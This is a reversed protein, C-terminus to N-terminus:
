NHIYLSKDIYAARLKRKRCEEACEVAYTGDAQEHQHIFGIKKAVDVRVIFSGMDIQCEKIQTRLIDYRIYNHITNCYVMGTGYSCKDTFLEIFMPVYYNDDNTILVYDDSNGTLQNLMLKRNPHGWLGNVRTTERFTIRPDNYLALVDKVDQPTEGDHIIHMMWNRNTQVLFCDILIRLPIARQYAVVIIQITM